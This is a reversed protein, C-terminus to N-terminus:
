LSVCVMFAPNFPMGTYRSGVVDVKFPLGLFLRLCCASGLIKDGTCRLLYM